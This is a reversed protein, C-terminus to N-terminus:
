EEGMKVVWVGKMIILRLCSHSTPDTSTYEKTQENFELKGHGISSMYERTKFSGNGGDSNVGRYTFLLTEINKLLGPNFAGGKEWANDPNPSLFTGLRELQFSV